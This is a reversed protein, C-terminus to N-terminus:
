VKKVLPQVNLKVGDISKIIVLQGKEIVEGNVSRATWVNGFVNVQGTGLHNNIQSTVVAEKGIYRGLNTDEKKFNLFKKVVPRTAILSLGSIIAFVLIQVFISDTFITSILAGVAGFVFWISVLQATAIELVSMLIIIFIWTYFIINNDM